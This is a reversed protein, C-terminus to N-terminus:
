YVYAAVSLPSPDPEAPLKDWDVASHDIPPAPMSTSAAPPNVAAGAVPQAAPTPPAALSVILTVALALAGAMLWPLSKRTPKIDASRLHLTM